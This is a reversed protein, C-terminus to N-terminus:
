IRIIKAGLAERGDRTSGNSLRCFPTKALANEYTLVQGNTEEWAHELRKYYKSYQDAGWSDQMDKKTWYREELITDAGAGLALCVQTRVLVAQTKLAEEEYVAPSKEPWLELVTNVSRCRFKIWMKLMLIKRNEVMVAPSKGRRGECKGYDRGSQFSWLSGTRKLVRHYYLAVIYHDSSLVGLKKLRYKLYAFRM